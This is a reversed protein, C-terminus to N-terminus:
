SGGFISLIESAKLWVRDLIDKGSLNDKFNAQNTETGLTIDKTQAPNEEPKKGIWLLSGLIKASIISWIVNSAIDTVWKTASGIQDGVSLRKNQIALENNAKSAASRDKYVYVRTKTKDWNKDYRYMYIEPAWISDVLIGWYENRQIELYSTENDCVSFWNNKITTKKSMNNTVSSVDASWVFIEESSQDRYWVCNEWSDKPSKIKNKGYLKITKALETNNFNLSSIQELQNYIMNSKRCLLDYLVDFEIKWAIMFRDEHYSDTIFEYESRKILNLYWEYSDCVNGGKQAFLLFNLIKPTNFLLKQFDWEFLHFIDIARDEEQKKKERKAALMLDTPWGKNNDKEPLAVVDVEKKVTADLITSEVKTQRSQGNKPKDKDDDGLKEFSM